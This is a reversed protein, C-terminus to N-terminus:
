HHIIGQVRRVHDVSCPITIAGKQKFGYEEGAEKLLGEFREGEVGGGGDGPWVKSRQSSAMASASAM